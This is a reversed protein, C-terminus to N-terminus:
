QGVVSTGVRLECARERIATYDLKGSPSRDVSPVMFVHKPAKYPALYARVHEILVTEDVVEDPQLEVVATIAEGFREDPLGVVAADRVAPHHKLAEEVEEPFVKEGGTNICGSGRGLFIVTGDADVTAYDGPVSYRTGDITVFTKATKVPDKYYGLPLVGSVALRGIQGSGPDVSKGDDLIVRANPGLRFRGTDTVEGSRSRSAGVDSGESSGLMDVLVAHPLHCLLADKVPQSWM